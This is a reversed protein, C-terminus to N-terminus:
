GWSPSMTRVRRVGMDGTLFWPKVLEADVHRWSWILMLRKMNAEIQSFAQLFIWGCEDAQSGDLLTFLRARAMTWEYSGREVFDMEGPEPFTRYIM